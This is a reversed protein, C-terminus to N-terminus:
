QAIPGVIKNLSELFSAGPEKKEYDWMSFSVPTPLSRDGDHQIKKIQQRGRKWQAIQNAIIKINGLLKYIHFTKKSSCRRRRADDTKRTQYCSWWDKETRDRREFSRRAALSLPEDVMEFHTHSSRRKLIFAVLSQFLFPEEHPPTRPWSECSTSTCRQKLGPRLGPWVEFKNRVITM